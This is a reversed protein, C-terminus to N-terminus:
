RRGANPRAALLDVETPSQDAPIVPRRLPAREVGNIVVRQNERDELRSLLLTSEAADMAQLTLGGPKIRNPPVHGAFLPDNITVYKLCVVRKRPQLELVRDILLFPYRHQLLALIEGIDMAGRKNESDAAESTSVNATETM